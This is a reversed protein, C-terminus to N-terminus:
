HHSIKELHLVCNLDPHYGENPSILLDGFDAFSLMFPLGTLSKRSDVTLGAKGQFVWQLLWYVLLCTFGARPPVVWVEGSVPMCSRFLPWSQFKSLHMSSRVATPIAIQIPVFLLQKRGFEPPFYRLTTVLVLIHQSLCPSLDSVQSPWLKLSSFRWGPIIFSYCNIFIQCSVTRFM